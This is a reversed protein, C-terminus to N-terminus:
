LASWAGNSSAVLGQIRARLDQFSRQQEEQKIVGDQNLSAAHGDEFRNLLARFKEGFPANIRRAQLGFEQERM